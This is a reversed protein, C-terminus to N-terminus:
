NKIKTLSGATELLCPWTIFIFSAISAKFTFTINRQCEKCIGINLELLMISQVISNTQVNFM